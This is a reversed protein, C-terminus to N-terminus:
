FVSHMSSVWEREMMLRWADTNFRIGLQCRPWWVRCSLGTQTTDPTATHIPCNSNVPESKLNETPSLRSSYSTWNVGGFRVRCPCSHKTPDLRATQIPYLVTFFILYMDNPACGDILRVCFDSWFACRIWRNQGKRNLELAVVIVM